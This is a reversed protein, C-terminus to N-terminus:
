ANNEKQERGKILAINSAAVEKTEERKKMESM